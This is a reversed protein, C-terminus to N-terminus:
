VPRWKRLKLDFKDTLERYKKQFAASNKRLGFSQEVGKLKSTVDLQFSFHGLSFLDSALMDFTGALAGFTEELDDSNIENPVTRSEAEISEETAAHAIHKNVFLSLRETREKLTKNAIEFVDRPILDDPTRTCPNKGCLRDIAEHLDSSLKWKAHNSPVTGSANSAHFAKVEQEDLKREEEYEYERSAAEFLQARKISTRSMSKLVARISYAGRKPDLLDDNDGGVASRLEVMISRYFAQHYAHMLGYPLSDKMETKAAESFAGSVCRYFVYDHWASVSRSWISKHKGSLAKIWEPYAENLPVQQM